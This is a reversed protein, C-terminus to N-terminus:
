ESPRAPLLMVAEPEVAELLRRVVLRELDPPTGPLAVSDRLWASEDHLLGLTVHDLGIRWEVRAVGDALEDEGLEPFRARIRQLAERPRARAEREACALAAILRRLAGEQASLVDDRTLLLSAETYLDTQLVHAGDGLIAEARAAYPDSIVAADLEGKALAEVSREPALDVVTVASRPVSGFRLILDLFFEANSGKALGVRAGALASFGAVGRDRRAVLRTNRTSTHLTTLVRVRPDAFAARLTPTEYAIAVDARNERMLALADRGLEFTHEEVDLRQRELCGSERALFFLATAPQRVAAVVLRERRPEACAAITLAALAWGATRRRTSGPADARRRGGDQLRARV